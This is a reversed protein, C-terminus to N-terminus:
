RGNYEILKAIMNKLKMSSDKNLMGTETNGSIPTCPYVEMHDPCLTLHGIVSYEKNFFILGAYKHFNLIGNYLGRYYVSTDNVFTLIEEISKKELVIPPYEVQSSIKGNGEIIFQSNGIQNKTQIFKFLVGNAVKGMPYQYKKNRWYKRQFDIWDVSTDQQCKLYFSEPLYNVAIKLDTYFVSDKLDIKTSQNNPHILIGNFFLLTIFIWILKM